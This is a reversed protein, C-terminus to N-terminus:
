RFTESNEPFGALLPLLIDPRDLPIIHRCDELQAGTLDDAIPRIQREPLPGVPHAGVAFTPMRLRATTERIQRATEPMERYHGFASRLSEAGTCAAVFEECIDAPIDGRARTSSGASTNASTDM